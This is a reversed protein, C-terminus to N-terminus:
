SAVAGTHALILDTARPHLHAAHGAGELVHHRGALAAATCAGFSRLGPHSAAGSLALVPIDTEGGTAHALAARDLRATWIALDSALVALGPDDDRLWGAVAAGLGADVATIFAQIASPDPATGAGALAAHVRRCLAGFRGAEVVDSPCLDEAPVEVLTLSAFADPRQQVARLLVLGGVSSGVAHVPEDGVEADITALLRDAQEVVGVEGSGGTREFGPRDVVVVRHHRAWRPAVGGFALRGGLVWGHVALLPPGAGQVTVGLPEVDPVEVGPPDVDPAEVDLPEADGDM